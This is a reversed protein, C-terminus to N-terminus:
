SAITAVPRVVRMSTSSTFVHCLKWGNNFFGKSCNIEHFVGTSRPIEIFDVGNRSNSLFFPQSINNCMAHEDHAPCSRCDLFPKWLPVQLREAYAKLSDRMRPCFEDDGPGHPSFVFPFDMNFVRLALSFQHTCKY